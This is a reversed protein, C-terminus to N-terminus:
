AGSPGLFGHRCARAAIASTSAAAVTKTTYAVLISTVSTCMTAVRPPQVKRTTFKKSPLVETRRCPWAFADTKRMTYVDGGGRVIRRANEPSIELGIEVGLRPNDNPQGPRAINRERIFAYFKGTVLVRQSM